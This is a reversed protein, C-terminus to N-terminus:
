IYRHQASTPMPIDAEFWNTRMQFVYRMAAHYDHPGELIKDQIGKKEENRGADRELTMISKILPQNEKSNEIFLRPKGTFENARMLMQITDIGAAISGSFKESKNLSPIAYDGRGLEQFLNMNNNTRDPANASSDCNTMGLRYGREEAREWLDKKIIERDAAKEYCGVVFHNGDRDVAVEVAVTPKARHPDLGRYVVYNYAREQPTMSHFFPEIVHLSRKFVGAYILGSLSVHDGLLRMRKQAYTPFRSVNKDIIALNAKPNNVPVLKYCEVSHDRDETDLVFQSTWSLGKTPTMTFFIQTRNATTFRPLTEEYIALPPEEDFGAFDLQVAGFSDVDQQTTKFHLMAIPEVNDRYYTLTKEGKMFSDEWKGNKLYKKPMWKKFEPLVVTMLQEENLATWRGKIVKGTTDLREEPFIGKLEPPIDRTCLIHTIIAGACSKGSQNGGFICLIDANSAFVDKQGDLREPIDEARIHKRVLGWGEETPEHGSPKFFWYPDSKQIEEDLREAEALKRKLKKLLKQKDSEM